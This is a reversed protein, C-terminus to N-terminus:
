NNKIWVNLCVTRRSRDMESQRSFSFNLTICMYDYKSGTVDGLHDVSCTLQESSKLLLVPPTSNWLRVYVASPPGRHAWDSSFTIRRWLSEGWMREECVHGNQCEYLCTVSWHFCIGMCFYHLNDRGIWICHWVELLKLAQMFSAQLGMDNWVHLVKHLHDYLYGGNTTTGFKYAM